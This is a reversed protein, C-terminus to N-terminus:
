GAAEEEEDEPPWAAISLIWELIELHRRKPFREELIQKGREGMRQALAPDAILRDIAAAMGGYDKRQLLFGNEGDLLWESVGGVWFAVLPRAHAMAEIGVLGFPEAWVSPCVVVTSRAYLTEIAEPATWGSFHVRETLGEEACKERLWAEYPGSGAIVARFPQEVRSLASLLFDIGKDPLSLRAPAFVLPADEADLFRATAEDLEGRPQAPTNSETFYHLVSTREPRFSVKLLEELMYQSSTLVRTARRAIELAHQHERLKQVPGMVPRAYGSLQFNTCGGKTWYREICAFGMPDRCIEGDNQYKNLSPCFLSHDHVYRVLPWREQLLELADVNHSSSWLIVDAAIGRVRQELEDAEAETLSDGGLPPFTVIEPGDVGPEGDQRCLVTIRHGREILSPVVAVAHREAGGILGWTDLVFLVHV